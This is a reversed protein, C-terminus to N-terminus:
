LVSCDWWTSIYGSEGASVLTKESFGKHRVIRAVKYTEHKAEFPTSIDYDGLRVLLQSVDYSSMSCVLLSSSPVDSSQPSPSVIMWQQQFNPFKVVVWCWTFTIHRDDFYLFANSLWFTANVREATQQSNNAVYQIAYTRRLMIIVM